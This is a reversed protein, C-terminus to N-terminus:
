RLVETLDSKLGGGLSFISEFQIETLRQPAVLSLRKEGNLEFREKLLRLPIPRRFRYTGFFCIAEIVKEPDGGAIRLVDVWRLTGKSGFKRFLSKASGREVRDVLSCARVEKKTRSVYWLIRKADSLNAGRTSRFYVNVESLLTEGRAGFLSERALGADFLQAAWREQVPVVFSVADPATLVAPWVVEGLDAFELDQTRGPQEDGSILRKFNELCDEASMFGCRCLCLMIDGSRVFDRLEGVRGWADDGALSEGSVAMGTFGRRGAEVRLGRLLHRFMSAGAKSDSAGVVEISARSKKVWQVGLFAEVRGGRSEFGVVAARDGIAYLADLRKQYLHRKVGSRSGFLEWLRDNDSATYRCVVTSQGDLDRPIYKEEELIRQFHAVLALPRLVSVGTNVLIADASSLIRNDLTIFFKAGDAVAQMLHREDSRGQIRRQQRLGRRIREQADKLSQHGAKLEVYNAAIAQNRAARGPDADREFENYIESTVALLISDELWPNTSLPLCDPRDEVHIGYFVNADIAAILRDDERDRVAAEYLNPSQKISGPCEWRQLELGELSRGPKKGCYSFGLSKWFEQLGYDKRCWVRFPRDDQFRRLFASVMKSALGEKRRERRICVHVLPIADDTERFTIFGDIDSGGDRLTLINGAAIFNLFAGRPFFGLTKKNPRYIELLIPLEALTAARLEVQHQPSNMITEDADRGKVM